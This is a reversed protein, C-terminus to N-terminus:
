LDSDPAEPAPAEPAEPAALVEEYEAEIADDDGRVAAAFHEIMAEGLQAALRRGGEPEDLGESQLVKDVAWRRAKETATENAPDLANELHLLAKPVMEKIRQRHAARQAKDALQASTETALAAAYRLYVPYASSNLFDTITQSRRGVIRAIESIPRGQLRMANVALALAILENDRASPAGESLRRELAIM